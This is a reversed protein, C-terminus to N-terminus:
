DAVIRVKSPACGDLLEQPTVGLAPDCTHAGKCQASCFTMGCDSCILFQTIVVPATVKAAGHNARNCARGLGCRLRRSHSSTSVSSM